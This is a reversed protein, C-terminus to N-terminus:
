FAKTITELILLMHKYADRRHSESPIDLNFFDNVFYSYAENTKQIMSKTLYTNNKGLQESEVLNLMDGKVEFCIEKFREKNSIEKNLWSLKLKIQNIIESVMYPIKDQEM